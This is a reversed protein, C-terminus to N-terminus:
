CKRSRHENELAPMTGSSVGGVLALRGLNM